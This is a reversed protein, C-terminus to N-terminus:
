ADCNLVANPILVTHKSNQQPNSAITQQKNPKEHPKLVIDNM